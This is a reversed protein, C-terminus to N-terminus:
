IVRKTGKWHDMGPNSLYRGLMGVIYAIDLRTCVQAYMLSGVVSAYPIKQMKKIEFDNEPRQGLSFKDGKTVPTDGPKCDQMGIRKLVKEIYSKQLLGLISLSSCYTWIMVPLCYTM